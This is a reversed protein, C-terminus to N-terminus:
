LRWEFASYNCHFLLYDAFFSLNLSDHHCTSINLRKGTSRPAIYRRRYDPSSIASSRGRNLLRGTTRSCSIWWPRLNVDSVVHKSFTLIRLDSLFMRCRQWSLLAAASKSVFLSFTSNSMSHSWTCSNLEEDSSKFERSESGSYPVHAKTTFSTSLRTKWQFAFQKKPSVYPERSCRHTTERGGDAQVEARRGTHLCLGAPMFVFGSM